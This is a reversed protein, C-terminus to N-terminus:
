KITFKIRKMSYVIFCVVHIFSNKSDEEGRKACYKFLVKSFYNENKVTHIVLFQALHDSAETKRM